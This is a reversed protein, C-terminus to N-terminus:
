TPGVSLNAVQPDPFFRHDCKFPNQRYWFRLSLLIPCWVGFNEDSLANAALLARILQTPISERSNAGRLCSYCSIPRYEFANKYIRFKLWSVRASYRPFYQGSRLVFFTIKWSPYKSCFQPTLINTTGSLESIFDGREPMKESIGGGFHHEFRDFFIDSSLIFFYKWSIYIKLLIVTRSYRQVWEAGRVFRRFVTANRGYFAM